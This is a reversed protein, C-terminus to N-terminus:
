ACLTPCVGVQFDDSAQLGTVALNLFPEIGFAATVDHVLEVFDEEVTVALLLYHLFGEDAEPRLDIAEADLDEIALDMALLGIAYEARQSARQKGEEHGNGLVFVALNATLVALFIVSLKETVFLMSYYLWCFPIVVLGVLLLVADYGLTDAVEGVTAALNKGECEVFALAVVFDKCEACILVGALISQFGCLIFTHIRQFTFDLLLELSIM